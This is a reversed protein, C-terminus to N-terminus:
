FTKNVTLLLRKRGVDKTDNVDNNSPTSDFFATNSNWVLALSGSWGDALNKGLSIRYDSFDPNTSGGATPTALDAKVNEHGAHVGFVYGDGFPFDASVDLYSSGRTGGTYGTKENFGLLDTVSQSYKVTVWKYTVSAFAETFDYKQSAMTAYKVKDYNGSPYFVSLVGFGYSWDEDLPRRYGVTLDFETHAGAYVKTSVNSAWLSAYAGSSHSYDISGQLAPESWTQTMGKFMYDNALTVTASLQHESVPAEDAHAGTALLSIASALILRKKL